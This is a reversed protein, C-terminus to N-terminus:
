NVRGRVHNRRKKGSASLESERNRLKEKIKTGRSLSRVPRRFDDIGADIHRADTKQVCRWLKSVSTEKELRYQFGDYKIGPKGRNTL